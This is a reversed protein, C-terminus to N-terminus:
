LVSRRATIKLYTKQQHAFFVYATSFHCYVDPYCLASDPCRLLKELYPAFSPFDDDNKAREWVAQADNLLVSYEVYEQAPIRHIQDYEKRLQETERRTQPDLNEANAELMKLIECNDESAILDYTIQSMIGMTKGRGEFSGKPAATAADLALIGMAHSYASVTAEIEDLRAVAEAINTYPM